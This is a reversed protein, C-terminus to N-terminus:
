VTWDLPNVCRTAEDTSYCRGDPGRAIQNPRRNLAREFPLDYSGENQAVRRAFRWWEKPTFKWATGYECAYVFRVAHLRAKRWNEFALDEAYYAYAKNRQDQTM